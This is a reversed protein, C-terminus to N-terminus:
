AHELRHVTPKAVHFFMRDSVDKGEKKATIVLDAVGPSVGETTITEGNVAVVRLVEPRSSTAAAIALKEDTGNAFVNM